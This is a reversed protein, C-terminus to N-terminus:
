INDCYYDELAEYTEPTCTGYQVSRWKETEEDYHTLFRVSPVTKLYDLLVLAKGFWFAPTGDCDYEPAPVFDSFDLEIPKDTLTPFYLTVM